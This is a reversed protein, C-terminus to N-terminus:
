ILSFLPLGGCIIPALLFTIGAGVMVGALFENKNKFHLVIITPLVYIFQIYTVLGTGRMISQMFNNNFPLESCYHIIAIFLILSNTICTILIGLQFDNKKQKIIEEKKEKETASSEM